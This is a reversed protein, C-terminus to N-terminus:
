LFVDYPYAPKSSAAEATFRSLFEEFSRAIRSPSEWEPAYGHVISGFDPEALRVALYDYDSHVALVIPLHENWFARVESQLGPDDKAGELAMLEYENWRFAGAATKRFEAPTLMWADETANHCVELRRLFDAVAPPIPPYRTRVTDPLLELSDASERIVWGRKRLEKLLVSM